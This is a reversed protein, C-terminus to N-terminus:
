DGKKFTNSVKRFLGLHHDSPKNTVGTLLYYRENDFLIVSYIQYVIGNTKSIGEGLIEYGHMGNIEKKQLGSVKINNYPLKNIRDIAATKEDNYIKNEYSRTVIFTTHDDARTPVIGDFTYILTGTINKALKLSTGTTDIAFNIGELIDVDKNLDHFISFIADKIAKDNHIQIKRFVGKVIHTTTDHGFILMYTIYEIGESSQNLRVFLAPNQNLLIIEKEELVIGKVSLTEETMAKAFGEFKRPVDVVYVSAGTEPQEFGHFSTSPIFDKPPILYFNTGAIRIHQETKQIDVQRQSDGIREKDNTNIKQGCSSITISVFILKLLQKIIGKDM